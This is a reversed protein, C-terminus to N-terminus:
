LLGGQEITLAAPRGYRMLRAFLWRAALTPVEITSQESVDGFRNHWFAGHVRQGTGLQMLFPLGLPRATDIPAGPQIVRLTTKGSPLEPAYILTRNIGRSGDYVILDRGHITLHLSEHQSPEPSWQAYHLAAGWGILASGPADTLGYWVQQHSDVMRDMVYTVAGFGLRAVIPAQGACYARIVSIPAVVEAWFGSGIVDVLDPPTYPVIPQLAERPVFGRGSSGAVQYWAGSRSVSEIATVSDPLLQGCVASADDPQSFVDTRRFARGTDTEFTPIVRATLSGSGLWGVSAAGARKLFARRSVQPM